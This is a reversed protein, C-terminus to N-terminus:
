AVCCENLFHFFEFPIYQVIVPSSLYGTSNLPINRQKAAINQGPGLNTLAWASSIVCVVMLDQLINGEVGLGLLHEASAHVHFLFVHM